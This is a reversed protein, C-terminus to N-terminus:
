RAPNNATMLSLRHGGIRAEPIGEPWVTVMLGVDEQSADYVVTFAAYVRPFKRTITAVTTLNHGGELSFDYQEFFSVSYKRNIKYSAGVTGVTSNIPGIHRIGLYYRLRPDRVVVVGANARGCRGSKLDWNVDALVTTSDSVHWTLDANVADRALSHEPRYAFYRGDAPLDDDDSFFSASVNLRLWDVTHRKGEPGRKTQWLQRVGVTGGAFERVYREIGPHFPYLEDHEVNAGAVFVRGYPTIVHKIRHLDWLRSRVGDYIRWIHTLANVGVQGWARFADDDDLDHQWYSLRGVAFPLLKVPGVSLPVDVEHRTDARFTGPSDRAALQDDPKYRVVGLRGESHLTLRDQWLSQGVLYGAVDPYSETQTLFDNIRWKALGTLAWNDRQKKVYLLNEQPKGTWFEAPFFEELFNRDCLYSTELQLQWDRPLFHKHRWLLRGRYTPAPVDERDSGFDDEAESDRLGYALAYGSYNERRYKVKSGLLVGREYLDVDLRGRFGEPRPVGLLRFLFWETEAGWGFRGHRGVQAKRLATHGERFDGV